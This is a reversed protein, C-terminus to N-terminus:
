YFFSLRKREVNFDFVRYGIEHMSTDVLGKMFFEFVRLFMRFYSEVYEM